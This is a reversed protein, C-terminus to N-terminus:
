RSTRTQIKIGSTLRRTWRRRFIMWWGPLIIQCPVRPEAARRGLPISDFEAPTLFQDKDLDFLTFDRKLVAKDHPLALFEELSLANDNNTDVAAFRKLSPADAAMVGSMPGFPLLGAMLMGVLIWRVYLSITSIMM